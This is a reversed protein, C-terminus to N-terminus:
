GTRIATQNDEVVEGFRGEHPATVVKVWHGKEARGEFPPLAARAEAELRLIEELTRPAFLSLAARELHEFKLVREGAAHAEFFTAELLEM